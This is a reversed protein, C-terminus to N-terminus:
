PILLRSDRESNNKPIQIVVANKMKEVEETRGNQTIIWLTPFPYEEKSILGRLDRVFLRM